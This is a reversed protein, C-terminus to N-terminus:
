FLKKFGNVVDKGAGVVAEGAAVAAGVSEGVQALNQLGPIAGAVPGSAEVSVFPLNLAVREGVSFGLEAKLGVEVGAGWNQGLFDASVDAKATGASAGITGGIQGPTVAVEGWASPGEASASGAVSGVPTHLEGTAAVSGLSVRGEAIAYPNAPDWSLVARGEASPGSLEVSGSGGLLENGFAGGASLRGVEVRGDAGITMLDPNSWANGEAQFLSAEAGYHYGAPSVRGEPMQVGQAALQDLFGKSLGLQEGFVGGLGGIAGRWGGEAIRSPLQLAAGIAVLGGAPTFLAAVKGIDAVFEGIGSVVNAVGKLLKKLGLFGGGENRKREEAELAAAHSDLQAAYVNLLEAAVQFNPVVSGWIMGCRDRAIGTWVAALADMERVMTSSRDVFQDATTRMLQASARLRAIDAGIQSM